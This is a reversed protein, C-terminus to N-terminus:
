AHHRSVFTAAGPIDVIGRHVACLVDALSPACHTVIRFDWGTGARSRRGGCGAHGRLGHFLLAVSSIWVKHRHSEDVSRDGLDGAHRRSGACGSASGLRGAWANRRAARVALWATAVLYFTLTGGLINGPQSRMVALFVGSASLCLMTIVFVNGALGHRRSGKLLFVAVYGSLMGLTGAVIHLLLIPSRM